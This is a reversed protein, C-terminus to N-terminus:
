VVSKRDLFATQTNAVAAASVHLDEQISVLAPSLMSANLQFALCASLLAVMLIGVSPPRKVESTSM